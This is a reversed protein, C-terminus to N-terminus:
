LFNSRPNGMGQNGRELIVYQSGATLRYKIQVTPLFDLFYTDAHNNLLVATERKGRVSPSFRIEKRYVFEVQSPDQTRLRQFTICIRTPSLVLIELKVAEPIDGGLHAEDIQRKEDGNRSFTVVYRQPSLDRCIQNIQQPRNKLEPGMNCYFHECLELQLFM